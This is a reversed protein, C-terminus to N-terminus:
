KVEVVFNSMIEPYTEKLTDEIFSTESKNKPLHTKNYILLIEIKNIKCDIFGVIRNGSAKTSENTGAIRFDYKFLWFNDKYKLQDIQSSRQTTNTSIRLRKLDEFISNETRVWQTGKYKKEFDKKYHSEAYSKFSVNFLVQSTPLLNTFM